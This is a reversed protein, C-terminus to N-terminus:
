YQCALDIVQGCSCQIRIGTVRDGEKRLTVVPAAAATGSPPHSHDAPTSPAPTALPRFPAPPASAAPVVKVRFASDEADPADRKVALPLFDGAM